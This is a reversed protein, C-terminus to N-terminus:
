EGLVDILTKLNEEGVREVLAKVVRIDSLTIGASKNTTVTRTKPAEVHVNTSESSIGKKAAKKKRLISTKYNSIHATSMELNFHEMIYSQIRVPMAKKGLKELAERVADMKNPEPSASAGDAKEATM